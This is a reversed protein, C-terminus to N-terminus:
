RFFSPKFEDLPVHTRVQELRDELDAVIDNGADSCLAWAQDEIM